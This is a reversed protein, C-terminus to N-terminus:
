RFGKSMEKDAAVQFLATGVTCPASPDDLTLGKDATVVFGWGHLDAIRTDEVDMGPGNPPIRLSDISFGLDRSAASLSSYHRSFVDREERHFGHSILFRERSQTQSTRCGLSALIIAVCLTIQFVIRM